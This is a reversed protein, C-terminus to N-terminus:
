NILQIWAEVVKIQIKKMSNLTKNIYDNIKRFLSTWVSLSDKSKYIM